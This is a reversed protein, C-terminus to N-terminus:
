RIMLVLLGIMLLGIKAKRDREKKVFEEKAEFNMTM